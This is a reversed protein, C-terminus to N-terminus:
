KITSLGNISWLEELFQRRPAKSLWKPTLLSKVFYKLSLQNNQYANGRWVNVWYFMRKVSKMLITMSRKAATLMLPNFPEQYFKYEDPKIDKLIEAINDNRNNTKANGKFSSLFHVWLELFVIQIYLTYWSTTITKQCKLISWMARISVYRIGWNFTFNM